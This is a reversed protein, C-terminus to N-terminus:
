PGVKREVCAGCNLTPKNRKRKTEANPYNSRVNAAISFDLPSSGASSTTGLSMNQGHGVLAPPPPFRCNPFQCEPIFIELLLHAKGIKILNIIRVTM